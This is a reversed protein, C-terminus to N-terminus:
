NKRSLGLKNSYEDNVMPEAQRVITIIYMYTIHHLKYLILSM